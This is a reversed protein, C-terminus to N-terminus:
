LRDPPRWHVNKKWEREICCCNGNNHPIFEQRLNDYGNQQRKLPHLQWLHHRHFGYSDLMFCTIMKVHLHMEWMENLKSDFHLLEGYNKKILILDVVITTFWHRNTHLHSQMWDVLGISYCFRLSRILSKYTSSREISFRNNVTQLSISSVETTFRGTFPKISLETLKLTFCEWFM